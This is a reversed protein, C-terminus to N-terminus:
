RSRWGTNYILSWGPGGDFASGLDFASTLEALHNGRRGSTPHLLGVGLTTALSPQGRVKESGKALAHRVRIQGSM